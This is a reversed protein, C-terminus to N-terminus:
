GSMREFVYRAVGHKPIDTMVYSFEDGIIREALEMLRKDSIYQKKGQDEMKLKEKYLLRLVCLIQQKDGDTIISAYKEARAKRDDVWEVYDTKDSLMTDIEENSMVRKIKDTLRSNDIPVFVTSSPSNIPNLVYYAAQKGIVSMKRMDSIRCVGTAGYVVTDGINFM